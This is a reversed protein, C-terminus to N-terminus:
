IHGGSSLDQKDLVVFGEAVREGLLEAQV